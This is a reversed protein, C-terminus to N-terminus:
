REPSVEGRLWADFVPALDRGAERSWWGVIGDYDSTGYPLSRPWERVLRWFLEDGLLGRIEHWMLAGSYYANGEGFTAPDYDAAPGADARMQPEDQAWYDMLQPLTYPEESAMWAGQLYMAMGENMWLDRWTTPGILDGWWHHAMEHVLVPTSTTYETMGLTIMTQTEMGSESDVFLFGLADFPYPGLKEELWALGRDAEALGADADVRDEDGVPVWYSLPVGSSSVAESVDYEGTAVTVLYSAAPQAMSWRTTTVGDSETRSLLQGNAVGVRPSPVSVTIDYTAKDSPQDDVAYWSYAGTPEQMTWTDGDETVTWGNTSFDGRTTPAAVPEPSGSYSIQLVHRDDKAVAAELRLDQGRRDFPVEEGDLRVTGVELAPSLDLVLRDSDRAARLLLTQEATLLREDPDWALDLDYHLADLVPHGVGPYVPDRRPRSVSADLAPDDLAPLEGLSVPALGVQGPEALVEVETDPGGASCGTLALLLALGVPRTARKARVEVVPESTSCRAGALLRSGGRM